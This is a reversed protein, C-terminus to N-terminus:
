TYRCYAAFHLTHHLCITTQAKTTKPLCLAMFVLVHQKVSLKVIAKLRGYQNYSSAQVFLHLADWLVKTAHNSVVM